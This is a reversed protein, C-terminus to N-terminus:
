PCGSSQDAIAALACANVMTLAVSIVLPPTYTFGYKRSSKAPASAFPMVTPEYANARGSYPAAPCASANAAATPVNGAPENGSTSSRSTV